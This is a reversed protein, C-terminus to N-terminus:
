LHYLLTFCLWFAALVFTFFVLKVPSPFPLHSMSCTVDSAPSSASLLAFPLKSNLLLNKKLTGNNWIYWDVTMYNVM